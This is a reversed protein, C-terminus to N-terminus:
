GCINNINFQDKYQMQLLYIYTYCVLSNNTYRVM